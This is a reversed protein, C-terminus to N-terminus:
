YFTTYKRALELQISLLVAYISFEVDLPLGKIEISIIKVLIKQIDKIKSLVIM